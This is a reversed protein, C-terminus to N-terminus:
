HLPNGGFNFAERHDDIFGALNPCQLLVDGCSPRVMTYLRTHLNHKFPNASSKRLSGSPSRLLLLAEPPASAGGHPGTRVKFFPRDQPKNTAELRFFVLKLGSPEGM